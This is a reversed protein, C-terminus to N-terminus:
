RAENLIELYRSGTPFVIPKQSQGFLVLCQRSGKDVRVVIGIDRTSNGFKLSRQKQGPTRYLRRVLDGIEM